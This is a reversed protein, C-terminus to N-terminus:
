DFNPQFDKIWNAIELFFHGFYRAKRWNQVKSPLTTINDSACNACITVLISYLDFDLSYGYENHYHFHLNHSTM